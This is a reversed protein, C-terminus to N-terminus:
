AVLNPRSPWVPPLNSPDLYLTSGKPFLSAQCPRTVVFPGALTFEWFGIPSICVTANSAWTARRLEVAVARCGVRGSIAVFGRYISRDEEKSHLQIPLHCRLFPRSPSSARKVKPPRGSALQISARRGKGLVPSSVRPM